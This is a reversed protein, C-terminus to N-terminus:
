HSSAEPAQEHLRFHPLVRLSRSPKNPNRKCRLPRSKHKESKNQLVKSLITM